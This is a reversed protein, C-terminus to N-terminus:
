TTSDSSSAPLIPTRDPRVAHNRVTATFTSGAGVTSRAVVDGGLMQSLHRVLALGLGTGGYKKTTSADAQAFPRFLGDLTHPPIGIGDDAVECVIMGGAESVRLTITGGRTFKVANALLNLLIQRLKTCDTHVALDAVEVTTRLQNGNAEAALRVAALAQEVIASVVVPEILVDMMGAEIKTLDLIDNILGLLHTGSSRIRGLDDLAGEDAHDEMLIESYGIIANLPTRLEHSMNALFTSKAASAGRAEQEAMRLGQLQLAMQGAMEAVAGTLQVAENRSARWEGMPSLGIGEVSLNGDAVQRAADVVRGIPRVLLAGMAWAFGVGCVVVMGVVVLVSERGRSTDAHLGQLSFGVTLAGKAGSATSIPARVVAFDDTFWVRIGPDAKMNTLGAPRVEPHFEALIRGGRGEVMAFRVEEDTELFALAEAVKKVDEFDVAPAVASAGVQALGVARREMAALGMAEIQRPLVIGLLAAILTFMLLVLVALQARISWGYM